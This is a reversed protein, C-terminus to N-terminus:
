NTKNGVNWENQLWYSWIVRWLQLILSVNVSVFLNFLCTIHDLGSPLFVLKLCTQIFACCVDKVVGGVKYCGLKSNPALDSTSIWEDTQAVPSLIVKRIYNLMTDENCLSCYKHSCSDIYVLLSILYNFFSTFLM